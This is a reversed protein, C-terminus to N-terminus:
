AQEAARQIAMATEIPKSFFPSHSADVTETRIGVGKAWDEVMMKQVQIPIAQDQLCYLYTTPLHKWGAYTVKSHFPQYSHTKLHAIASEIEDQRMDNYFIKEPTMADVATRDPSVDFWPLDSGGFAEILSRDEPILFSCCFFLHAVGGRLSQAKRSAMDLGEVAVSSPIGGYSHVVLIVKQGADIEELVASRIKQVDPDFSAHHIKPGCTELTVYRTKYGSERLKIAVAYYCLPNHWAGPVFVITTSDNGM